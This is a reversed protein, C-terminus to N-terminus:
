PLKPNPPRKPGTSSSTPRPWPPAPCTTPASGPATTSPAGHGPLPLGVNRFQFLESVLQTDADAAASRLVAAVQADEDAAHLVSGLWEYWAEEGPRAPIEAM